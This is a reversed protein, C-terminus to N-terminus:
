PTPSPVATSSPAATASPAPTPSPDSYAATSGLPPAGTSRVVLLQGADVAQTLALAQTANTVSVTLVQSSSGNSALGAKATAVDVVRVGSAVVVTTAGSGTGFTALVDVRDGSQLSGNLARAADVPFSLQRQRRAGAAVVDSAQILGGQRVPGVVVAGVLARPDRFALTSSLTPTLDMPATTLDSAALRQGMHLATAAVVFRQRRSATAGQYAAFIGVAAAAVLFGGVVARGSPLPRRRRLVRGPGRGDGNGTGLSAGNRDATLM